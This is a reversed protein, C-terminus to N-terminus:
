ANGNGVECTVITRDHIIGRSVYWKIRGLTFTQRYFVGNEVWEGKEDLCGRRCSDISQFLELNSTIGLFVKNLSLKIGFM